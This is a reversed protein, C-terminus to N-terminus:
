CSHQLWGYRTIQAQINQTTQYKLGLVLGIPVVEVGTVKEGLTELNSNRHEILYDKYKNVLARIGYTVHLNTVQNTQDCHRVTFAKCGM